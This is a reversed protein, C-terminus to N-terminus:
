NVVWFCRQISNWDQRNTQTDTLCYSEFTKVYSTRIQVDPIAGHFIPWTPIHLDNPWPWPWLLRFPLFNRNQLIFSRDAIVGNRYFMLTM